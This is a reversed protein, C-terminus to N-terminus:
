AAGEQRRRRPAQALGLRRRCPLCVALGAVLRWGGSCAHTRPFGCACCLSGVAPIEDKTHRSQRPPAPNADVLEPDQHEITSEQCGPPEDPHDLWWGYGRPHEGIRGFREVRAAYLEVRRSREAMALDRDEGGELPPFLAHFGRLRTTHHRELDGDHM